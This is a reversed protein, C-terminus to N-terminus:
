AAPTGGGASVSVFNNVPLQTSALTPDPSDSCASLIVAIALVTLVGLWRIRLSFVTM